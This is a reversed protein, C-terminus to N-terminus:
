RRLEQNNNCMDRALALLATDDASPAVSVSKWGKGASEAVRPAIAAIAIKARQIGCRDCEEAFHRAARASHLLVVGGPGLAESMQTSMARMAARYVVRDTITIGRPPTLSVRDQGGLRLLKLSRVTLSNLLEQLGGSGTQAVSFGANKAVDATTKGVALVPIFALKAMQEGGHRFVNGSGILLGDFALEEPLNWAVTEIEFLPEGAMDLGLERGSDITQSYGPEPRITYIRGTM